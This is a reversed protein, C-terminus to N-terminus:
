LRLRRGTRGRQAHLSALAERLLCEADQPTRGRAACGPLDPSEALWGGGPERRITVGTRTRGM